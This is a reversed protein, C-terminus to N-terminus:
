RRFAAKGARCLYAEALRAARDSVFLDVNTRTLALLREETTAHPEVTGDALIHGVDLGREALARTILICRHCDLPEREACMLCLQSNEGADAILEDLATRFAPTRAIATYDTVGAHMLAPDAPRGGLAEGRWSYGIDAERLHEALKGQSFWPFRRSFPKSRVDVITAIQAQKLLALFREVPHNSHGITFLDVANRSSMPAVHAYSIPQAVAPLPARTQRWQSSRLGRLLGPTRWFAARVQNAKQEGTM